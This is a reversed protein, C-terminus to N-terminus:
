NTHTKFWWSRSRTVRKKIEGSHFCCSQVLTSGINVQFSLCFLIYRKLIIKSGWDVNLYNDFRKGKIIDVWPSPPLPCISLKPVRTRSPGVVRTTARALCTGLHWTQKHQGCLTAPLNHRCLGVLGAGATFRQVYKKSCAVSTLLRCVGRASM